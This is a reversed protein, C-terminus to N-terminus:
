HTLSTSELKVCEGVVILYFGYSSFSIVYATFFKSLGCISNNAMVYALQPFNQSLEVNYLIGVGM